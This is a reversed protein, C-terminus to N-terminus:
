QTISTVASLSLRRRRRCRRLPYPSPFCLPWQSHDLLKCDLLFVVVFFALDDVDIMLFFLSPSTVIKCVIWVSSLGCCFYWIHEFNNLIRNDDGKDGCQEKPGVIMRGGGGGSRASMMMMMMTIMLMSINSSSTATRSATQYHLSLFHSYPRLNHWWYHYTHKKELTEDDNINGWVVQAKNNKTTM